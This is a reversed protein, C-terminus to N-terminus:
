CFRKRLSFNVLIHKRGPSQGVGRELLKRREEQQTSDGYLLRWKATKERMCASVAINMYIGDPVQM